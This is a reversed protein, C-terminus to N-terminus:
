QEKLIIGTFIRGSQPGLRRASFYDEANNYTCIGCNQIANEAMGCSLMLQRNCEALDIHWRLEPLGDCTRLTNGTKNDIRPMRKSVLPMNFKANEFEAYVEDGVEFAELSIGPGIVAKLAAPKTGYSTHMAMIAKMIIGAVTGRWGAHVACIARNEPDYLLIPMCDATSVGICIGTEKTMVADVGELVMKRIDGPLSFFDPAIMRIETDHTQHPMVINEEEVGLTEALAHRNASVDELSDGCYPNINFEGYNGKSSGGHRTTSFATIGPAIDYLTLKPHATM